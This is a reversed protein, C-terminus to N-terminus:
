EKIVKFVAKRSTADTLEIFYVGPKQNIEIEILNSNTLTRSEIQQGAVDLIRLTIQKELNNFKISLKGQTPNPFYSFSKGLSNEVLGTTTISVCASTDACGNETVAVAYNGNVTATFSANTEGNIIAFSNDCDLWQYIAGTVNSTITGGMLTTGTNVTNITLDLTVLSDCSNAAGGVINFTATDNNSNYTNGDIWTYSNCETRTDTGTTPNVITLDLTVTSDCSNAAGGVINFTATNNNSNYTNGDIWTYSNCETRTDTGTTPNVITLDLTVISDCSNAAGGVINFTATNNSTTYINSDIWQYSNCETRTDIGNSAICQITFEGITGHSNVSGGCDASVYIDYTSGLSLGALTYSITSGSIGVDLTTLAITTGTGPTLPAPGYELNWATESGNQTWTLYPTNTTQSPAALATPSACNSACSIVGSFYNGNAPSSGMSVQSLVGGNPDTLTWGVESNFSGPTWGVSILDNDNVPIFATGTSGSSLTYATPTGNITFTLTGGNWGDGWSDFENLTLTCQAQANMLFGISCGLLAGIRTIKKKM